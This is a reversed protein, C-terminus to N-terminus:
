RRKDLRLKRLKDPRCRVAGIPQVLDFVVAIAEEDADDGVLALYDPISSPPVGFKEM